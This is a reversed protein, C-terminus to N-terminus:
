SDATSSNKEYGPQLLLGHMGAAPETDMPRVGNECFFEKKGFFIYSQRPM